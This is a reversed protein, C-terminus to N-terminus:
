TEDGEKHSFEDRNYLERYYLEELLEITAEIFYGDPDEYVFKHGYTWPPTGSLEAYDVAEPLANRWYDLLSEISLGCGYLREKDM